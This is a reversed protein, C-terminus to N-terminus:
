IKQQVSQEELRQNWYWTPNIEPNTDDIADITSSFSINGAGTTGSTVIVTYDGASQALKVAGSITINSADTEIDNSLNITSATLGVAGIDTGIVAGGPNDLTIIAGSGLTSGSANM